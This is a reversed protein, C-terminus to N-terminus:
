TMRNMVPRWAQSKVYAGNDENLGGDSPGSRHRMIELSERVKLDFKLKNKNKNSYTALIEPEDWKVPQKCSEKHQVLGSHSWNGKKAAAEHEKSRVEFSRATEGIYTAKPDCPCSHKYVGKKRMPDQRTKNPAFLVNQLKRGSKFVTNCGAKNLARKLQNSIGHIRSAVWFVGDVNQNLLPNMKMIPHLPHHHLDM